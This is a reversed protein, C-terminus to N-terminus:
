DWNGMGLLDKPKSSQSYDSNKVTQLIIAKVTDKTIIARNGDYTIDCSAECVAVKILFDLLAELEVIPEIVTLADNM